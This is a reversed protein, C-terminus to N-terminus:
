KPPRENPTYAIEIRGIAQKPSATDAMVIELTDGSREVPLSARYRARRGQDYSISEPTVQTRSGGHRSIFFEPAVESRFVTLSLERVNGPVRYVLSAPKGPEARQAVAVDELFEDHAYAKNIKLNRSTPDARSLDFLDDILWYRDPTLPGVVNSPSSLGAANRALVRYFYTRGLEATTDAYLSTYVTLYTQIGSEVTTWPGAPHSARQLEYSNAGTSGQWALHGTDAPALFTPPAPPVLPQRAGGAFRASYETLINLLEDERAVEPLYDNPGAFGPWNLDEFQSGRDSHKYYGGDRNHFRVAWWNAGVTGDSMIEDLLARLKAPSTYMAVESIILPMKGRLQDRILRLTGVNSDAEALNVYTHYSVGGINPDGLFEDYRNYVDNPKNRGDILLQKPALTKIYAAIDHLWRRRVPDDGIVLENGTQWAFITPDDCYRVGNLSNTRGLLQALMNKFRLNAESGVVWFDPGYTSPDGRVGSKYAILPVLLRVGEARGIQLLRDLVVLAPEHPIVPNAAVNFMAMPNDTASCTIVFTRLVRGGMQRVTRIADRQEFEDPLRYRTAATDGDFAYNSIIQLVDPMNVSVYRFERDGDFLRDGRRTIFREVSQASERTGVSTTQAPLSLPAVVGVVSALLIPVGARRALCLLRM